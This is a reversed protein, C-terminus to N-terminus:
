FKNIYDMIGAVWIMAANDTSYINKSPFYFNEIWYKDKNEYIFSILKKNSSVWWVLAVNKIWFYKWAKLLKTWLTEIVAQQFEYAILSIIDEPLNEWYKNKLNQIKYNVQAKLWSFSFNFENKKLRIRPFYIDNIKHTNKKNLISKEYIRKGGPYPWWLMKSVKDFVEWAADDLTFWLKFLKFNWVDGVLDSKDIWYSTSFENIYDNLLSNGLKYQNWKSVLYIENHWWSVTLVILPFKIDDIWRDIFISFIHGYIHYVPIKTKNLMISLTNALTKWVLLSWPLGPCCTYSIFDVSKLQDLWLKELLEIIKEEHLRSALEPVVWWFRNHSDIQSYLLLESPFFKKDSFNVIAISTDDCSTEIALTKM